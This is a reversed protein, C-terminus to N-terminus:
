RNFVSESTPEENIWHFGRALLPAEPQLHLSLQLHMGRHVAVIELHDTATRTYSWIEKDEASQSNEPVVELTHHTADVVLKM